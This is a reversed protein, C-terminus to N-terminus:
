RHPLGRAISGAGHRGCDAAVTVPEDALILVREIQREIEPSMNLPLYPVSAERAPPRRCLRPFWCRLAVVPQTCVRDAIALRAVGSM